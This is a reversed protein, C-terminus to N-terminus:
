QSDYDGYLAALILEIRLEHIKIKVYYLREIFKLHKLM